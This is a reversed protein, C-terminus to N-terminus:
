IKIAAYDLWNSDKELFIKNKGLRLKEIEFLSEKQFIQFNFKSKLDNLAKDDFSELKIKFKKIFDSKISKIPKLVDFILLNKRDSSKCGQIIKEIDDKTLFYSLGQCIIIAPTDVYYENLLMNFIEIMAPSNYNANMCKIKESFEPYQMDYIQKKEDMGSFDIELIKDITYYKKLLRISLKSKGSSLIVVLRKENSKELESRIFKDIVFEKNSLTEEVWNNNFDEKKSM